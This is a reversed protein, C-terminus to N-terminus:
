QRCVDVEQPDSAWRGTPVLQKLEEFWNLILTVANGDTTGGSGLPELIEYHGLTKGVVKVAGQRSFLHSSQLRFAPAPGPGDRARDLLKDWM